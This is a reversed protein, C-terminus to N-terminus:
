MGGKMDYIMMMMMMVMEVRLDIVRGLKREPFKPNSRCVVVGRGRPGLFSLLITVL